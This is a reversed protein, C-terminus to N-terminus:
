LEYPLHDLASLLSGEVVILEPVTKCVFSPSRTNAWAQFKRVAAELLFYRLRTDPPSFTLHHQRM